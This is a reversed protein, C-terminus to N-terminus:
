PKTIVLVQEQQGDLTAQEDPGRADFKGTIVTLIGVVILKNPGDEFILRGVFTATGDNRTFTLYDDGKYKYARGTIPHSTGQDDTHTGRPLNGNPEMDRLDVRGPRADLIPETGPINFRFIRRLESLKHAMTSRRQIQNISTVSVLQTLNSNLTQARQIVSTPQRGASRVVALFRNKRLVIATGDEKAFAVDGLSPENLRRLDLEDFRGLIELLRLNPDSTKNSQYVTTAILQGTSLDSPKILLEYVNRFREDKFHKDTHIEWGALFSGGIISALSIDTDDGPLEDEVTPWSDFQYFSKLKAILEPERFGEDSRYGDGLRRRRRGYDLNNPIPQCHPTNRVLSFRYGERESGFPVNTPQVGVFPQQLDEDIRLCGDFLEDNAECRGKWAVAHHIFTKCDFTQSGILVIPHTRFVEGMSSQSLQCGLVNAFTSIVTACDDCNVTQNGGVGTNLLRLFETCLFRSFAYSPDEYWSVLKSVRQFFEKTILEAAEDLDGAAGSAWKCAFDLVETWPQHTNDSASSKPEWPDSPRALVTYIRHRTTQFDTWVNPESSFQWRWGIDHIGVGVCAVRADPLKLTMFDSSENNPIEVPEVDGLVHDTFEAIARIRISTGPNSECNFSAQISMEAPLACIAYGAPSAEYNTPTDPLWEPLRVPETENRRLNFAGTKKLDDPDYNFKIGKLEVRM